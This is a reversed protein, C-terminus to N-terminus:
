WRVEMQSVIRSALEQIAEETATDISQGAEPVFRSDQGFTIALDGSPIASNQMLSEGNRSIWNARVSLAADLARPDDNVTESLVTKSENVVRCQLTSDANPDGTVKYPTRTEIERVIAETLRVGLDHRFTDNRIVPVHVTRIGPRFMTQSGFRYSACGVFGTSAIVCMLMIAVANVTRQGTSYMM